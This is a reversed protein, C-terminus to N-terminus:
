GKFSMDDNDVRRAVISKLVRRCFEERHLSMACERLGDSVVSPGFVGATVNKTGMSTLDCREGAASSSSAGCVKSWNNVSCRESHKKDRERM